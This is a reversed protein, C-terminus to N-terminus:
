SSAYCAQLSYRLNVGLLSPGRANASIVEGDVRRCLITAGIGIDSSSGPFGETAISLGEERMGAEALAMGKMARSGAGPMKGRGRARRSARKPRIIDRM